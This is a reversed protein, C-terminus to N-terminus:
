KRNNAEIERYSSSKGLELKWSDVTNVSLFLPSVPPPCLLLLPSPRESELSGLSLSRQSLVKAIEAITTIAAIASSKKKAANIHFGPKLYCRKPNKAKWHAVKRCNVLVILVPRSGLEGSPKGREWINKGYWTGPVDPACVSHIKPSEFKAVRPRTTFFSSYTVTISLYPPLKIIPANNKLAWLESWISLDWLM